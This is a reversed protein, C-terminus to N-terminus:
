PHKSTTKRKQSQVQMVQQFESMMTGFQHTLQEVQLSVNSNDSFSILHDDLYDDWGGAVKIKELLNPLMEICMENAKDILSPLVRCM